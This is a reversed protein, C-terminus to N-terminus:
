KTSVVLTNTFFEFFNIKIKEKKFGAYVLMKKIDKPWFYNKHDSIERKDILGLVALFELIPKAIPSPTTLILRGGNKLIRFTEAIINKPDDLHEIFAIMTVADFQSTTLPLNSNIKINKLELNGEKRDALDQDLGVGKKIRSKIKNLFFVEIGCGIDCIISEKLIYGIIKQTRWFRFIKDLLTNDM